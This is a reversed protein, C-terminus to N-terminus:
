GEENILGSDKERNFEVEIITEVARKGNETLKKYQTIAEQEGFTLVLDNLLKCEDQFLYNADVELIEMLKAITAVSPDRHNKGVSEYGSITNKGCGLLNALEKQTLNKAKRAEKLRSSFSM